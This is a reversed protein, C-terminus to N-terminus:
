CYPGSTHLTYAMGVAVAGFPGSFTFEVGGIGNETTLVVQGDESNACTASDVEAFLVFDSAPEIFVTDLYTCGLSDALTLPYTGPM